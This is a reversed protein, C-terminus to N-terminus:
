TRSIKSDILAQTPVYLIRSYEFMRKTMIEVHSCDPANNQRSVFLKGLESRTKSIMRIDKFSPYSPVLAFGVV